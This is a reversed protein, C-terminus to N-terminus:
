TSGNIKLNIGEQIPMPKRTLAATHFTCNSGRCYDAPVHLM